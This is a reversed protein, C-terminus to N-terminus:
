VLGSMVLNDGHHEGHTKLSGTPDLLLTLAGVSSCSLTTLHLAALLAPLSVVLTSNSSQKILKLVLQSPNSKFLLKSTLM